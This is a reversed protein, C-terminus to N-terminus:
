KTVLGGVGRVIISDCTGDNIRAAIDATSNSGLCNGGGAAGLLAVGMVNVPSGAGLLLVPALDVTLKGKGNTLVVKLYINAPDDCIPPSATDVPCTSLAVKLVLNDDADEAPGTTMLAGTGDTVGKITAKLQLTDKIKVKSKESMTGPACDNNDGGCGADVNLCFLGAVLCDPPTPVINMQVKTGALALTSWLLLAAAFLISRSCM